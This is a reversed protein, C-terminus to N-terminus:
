GFIFAIIRDAARETHQEIDDKEWTSKEFDHVLYHAFPFVSDKYGSKTTVSSEKKGAFWKNSIAANISKELLIKNGLKNVSQQFEDNEMKADKRISELNRGSAPMIHEIEINPQNFDIERGTEKAFLYENLYVLANHPKSDTIASYIEEKKPLFKKINENIEQVLDDTPMKQGIKMNLGILFLKFEGSSYSFKGVLLIIFLKLLAAIFKQKEEFTADNNFFLYTAYFFKFNNNCQFLIHTLAIFDKAGINEQASNKLSLKWIEVVIEIDSIFRNTDKLDDKQISTFYKRVSPLATETENRRARCIYMYQNLIDDLKTSQQRALKEASEKISKWRRHFDEVQSDELKSYLKASIIDSNSLPMGTSNLSNFIEIAEETNDSIVAIVQCNKLNKAWKNVKTSDLENLKNLFFSFNTFFNTYKKASKKKIPTAIPQVANEISEFSNGRLITEIENPYEENMSKNEYKIGLKLLGEPDKLTKIVDDEDLVYLCVMLEKRRAKLADKLEASEDDEDDLIFNELIANIRLLFAKLLLMFTTIRQQGDIIQLAKSDNNIIVTGFFYTDNNKHEVFTELDEWLKECQENATWSYARQYEPIIFRGEKQLISGHSNTFLGLITDLKADITKAM